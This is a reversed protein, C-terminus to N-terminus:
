AKLKQAEGRLGIMVKRAEAIRAMQAKGAESLAMSELTKQTKSIEASTAAIQDKFEAEVAPDSSLVVALTRAANTETLAMWRVAAGVRVDMDKQVAESAAQVKASRYGSFAVVGVLMVVILAVALWLKQAMRMRNPM